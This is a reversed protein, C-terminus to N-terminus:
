NRPEKIPPLILRKILNREVDREKEKDMRANWNTIVGMRDILLNPNDAKESLM